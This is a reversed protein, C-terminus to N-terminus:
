ENMGLRARLEPTAIGDPQLGCSKQYARLGEDTVRGFEGDVISGGYFGHAALAQQLKTVPAGCSGFLLDAVGTGAQGGDHWKGFSLFDALTYHFLEQKKAVRYVLDHFTTWPPGSWGGWIVQCGASNLGVKGGSGGAHINIGTYMPYDVLDTLELRADDDLDRIVCVPSKDAQRLAEHGRHDGRAYRYQGPQVTPCGKDSGAYTSSHIWALGPKASAKFTELYPSGNAKQGFIIMTDDYHDTYERPDGKASLSGDTGVTCGRLCILHATGPGTADNRWAQDTLFQALKVSLGAKAIAM